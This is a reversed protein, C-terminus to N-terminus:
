LDTMLLDDFTFGQHLFVRVIPSNFEFFAESMLDPSDATFTSVSLTLNEPLCAYKWHGRPDGRRAAVAM